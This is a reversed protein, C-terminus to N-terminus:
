FRKLLLGADASIVQGTTYPLDGSALVAIIRGIEEPEGLRPLLTLGGAALERYHEHVAATMATQIVGPRVDYVHINEQGLRAAFLQSTMGAAAKSACYEGRTVSAAEANSSTVNVISYFRGDDRSRGVLKRAFAQSLFFMAKANVAMCRDYSEESVDLLDGRSLVSVGANNVLTSIPGLAAEAADLMADHIELNAVDGPLKVVGVGISAVAARANELEADDALGNLAIAFGRRALSIAAAFGIGRSAGTVLAVHNDIM